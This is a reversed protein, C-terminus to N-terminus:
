WKSPLYSIFFIMRNLELDGLNLIIRWVYKLHYHHGYYYHYDLLRLAKCTTNKLNEYLEM